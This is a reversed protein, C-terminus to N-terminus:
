PMPDKRAQSQRTYGRQSLVSTCVLMHRLIDISGPCSTCPSSKFPIIRLDNGNLHFTVLLYPSLLSCEIVCLDTGILKLCHVAAHNDKVISNREDAYRCVKPRSSGGDV